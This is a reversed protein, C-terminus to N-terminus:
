LFNDEASHPDHDGCFVLESQKLLFQASSPIFISPFLARPWQQLFCVEVDQQTDLSEEFGLCVTM